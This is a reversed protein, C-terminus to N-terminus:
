SGLLKGMILERYLLGQVVTYHTESGKSTTKSRGQRADEWSKALTEDGRQAESFEEKSSAMLMAESVTLPKLPKERRAKQGRTEVAGGRESDMVSEDGGEKPFDWNPDPDGPARVGAINGLTLDYLPERMVLADVEGKYYPTDTAVRAVPVERVTGDLLVCRQIKGLLQGPSTLSEKVVVTSCGSDRLVSAERGSVVGKVVPMNGSASSNAANVVPLEGGSALKVYTGPNRPVDYKVLSAHLCAAGSEASKTNDVEAKTDTQKLQLGAARNFKGTNGKARCDKSIHGLKECNYCRPSAVVSGGNKNQAQTNQRQQSNPMPSSRKSDHKMKPHAEQYQQALTILGELRNPKREKVFLKMEKPCVKYMQEIIFLECLGEFSQEIEALEVWRLLYRRLRESFQSYTEGEEPYNIPRFKERFGEETLEYRHLLASKLKDYDNADESPLRTYVELAKGTLLTSLPLSWEERDWGSSQAFREFRCLFSDMNDHKDNFMPLRQVGVASPREARTKGETAIKLEIEKLTQQHEREKQEHEREKQREDREKDKADVVKQREERAFALLDEGSLGVEKGMELYPKLDM